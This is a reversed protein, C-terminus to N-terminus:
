PNLERDDLRAQSNTYMTNGPERMSKGSVTMIKCYTVYDINESLMIAHGDCFSVAFMGGSHMSSPRCYSSNSTTTTVGKMKNLPIPATASNFWLNCLRTEFETENSVNLLSWQDLDVNEAFMLTSAQGDGKTLNSTGCREIKRGNNLIGFHFVGNEAWDKPITASGSVDQRGGNAGYSLSGGSAVPPDSPCVLIDLQISDTVLVDAKDFYSALLFPWGRNPNSSANFSGTAPGAVYPPYFGGKEMTYTQAAKSIQSINTLCQAARARERAGAVAPILLAMLLGIITIVVLLEVITFGRHLRSM